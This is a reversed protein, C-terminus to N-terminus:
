CTAGDRIVGYAGPRTAYSRDPRVPEGYRRM